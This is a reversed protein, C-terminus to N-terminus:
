SIDENFLQIYDISFELKLSRTCLVTNEPFNWPTQVGIFFVYRIIGIWKGIIGILFFFMIINYFL